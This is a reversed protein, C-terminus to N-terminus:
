PQDLKSQRTHGLAKAKGAANRHLRAACARPAFRSQDQLVTLVTSLATIVPKEVDFGDPYIRRVIM